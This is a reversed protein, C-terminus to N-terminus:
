KLILSPYTITSNKGAFMNEVNREFQNTLVTLVSLTNSSYYETHCNKTPCCLAPINRVKLLRGQIDYTEDKFVSQMEKNCFTCKSNIM